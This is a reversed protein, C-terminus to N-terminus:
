SRRAGLWEIIITSTQMHALHSMLGSSIGTETANSKKKGCGVQLGAGLMLNVLVWKYVKTSLPVMLTLHRAWSCLVIDGSVM